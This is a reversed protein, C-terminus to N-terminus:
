VKRKRGRPVGWVTNNKRNEGPLLPRRPGGILADDMKRMLQGRERQEAMIAFLKALGEETYTHPTKRNRISAIIIRGLHSRNNIAEAYGKSHKQIFFRPGCFAGAVLKGTPDKVPKHAGRIKPEGNRHRAILKAIADPLGEIPPKEVSEDAEEEGAAKAAKRPRSAVVYAAVASFNHASEHSPHTCDYRGYRWVLKSVLETDLQRGLAKAYMSLESPRIHEILKVGDEGTTTLFKWADSTCPKLDLDLPREEKVETEEKELFEKAPDVDLQRVGQRNEAM